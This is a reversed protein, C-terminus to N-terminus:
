VTSRGILTEKIQENQWLVTLKKTSISPLCRADIQSRIWITTFGDYDEVLDISAVKYLFVAVFIKGTNTAFIYLPETETFHVSDAKASIDNKPNPVGILDIIYNTKM